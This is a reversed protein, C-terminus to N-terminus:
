FGTQGTSAALTRILTLPASTPSPGGTLAPSATEAIVTSMQATIVISTSDGSQPIIPGCASLFVAIIMTFTALRKM